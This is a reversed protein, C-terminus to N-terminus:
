KTQFVQPFALAHTLGKRELFKFEDKLVGNECLRDYAERMELDGVEGIKCMYCNHVDNMMLVNPPISSFARALDGKYAIELIEQFKTQACAKNSILKVNTVEKGEKRMVISSSAAM